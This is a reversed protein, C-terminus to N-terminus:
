SIVTSSSSGTDQEVRIQVPIRERLEEVHSIIGVHRGTKMHLSRLTAIAKQLPTGSLSGFGEDIFLTEVRPNEGIDSLALALALSVLFSEGGSLTNASRVVGGQWADEVSVALTEPVTHLRYRGALSTMYGNAAEVLNQLVYGQAVNRFKGGDNSGIYDNLRRWKEYEKGCKEAKLALAAAKGRSERDDRLRQSLAGKEEAVLRLRREIDESEERLRDPEADAAGLRELQELRSGVVERARRIADLAASTESLIDAGAGDLRAVRKEPMTGREDGWEPMLELIKERLSGLRSLGERDRKVASQLAVLRDTKERYERAVRELEGCFRLPERKWDVEWDGEVLTAVHTETEENERQKSAALTEYKGIEAKRGSILATLRDLDERVKDRIKVKSDYDKHLAALATERREGEAIKEDLTLVVSDLEKMAAGVAADMGSLLEGDPLTGEFEPLGATRCAQLAQLRDSAVLTEMKLIEKNDAELRGSLTEISGRVRNVGAESKRLAKEAEEFDRRYGEILTKLDAEPMIEEMVVQRCVPCIDGVALRARVNRAFRDLTDKQGDYKKRAERFKRDAEERAPLLSTLERAAEDRLKGTNVAAERLDALLAVNRRFVDVVRQAEVVAKRRADTERRRSRLEPLGIEELRRRAEDVLTKAKEMASAAAAAEATLSEHHPLIETELTKKLEEAKAACRAAEDRGGALAGLRARINGAEGITKLRPSERELIRGTEVTERELGEIESAERLIGGDFELYRLRLRALEGTKEGLEKEAGAMADLCERVTQRERRERELASLRMALAAMSRRVSLRESGKMVGVEGAERVAQRWAAEKERYIEFVKRGIVAYKETGTIKELIAAKDKPESKLFKSFDGQALMTTRTFQEFDLGVAEEIERKLDDKELPSVEDGRLLTRKVGQLAGGPKRRARAVSWCAEYDRGNNGTFSLSVFGEGTNRRLLQRPDTVKVEDGGQSVATERKNFLRPTKGYLALSVADLITTKGAGTDGTILFVDADALPPALFDIEADEISAINHIVLKKLKM